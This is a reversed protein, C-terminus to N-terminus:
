KKILWEIEPLNAIGRLQMYIKKISQETAEVKDLIQNLNKEETIGEIINECMDLYYSPYLIRIFLLNIEYINLKNGYIYQMIKEIVDIQNLICSKFYESVDRVRNDIIFGTPNLYEHLTTNITTRAHAVTIISNQQGISSLMSICNEVIGIFYDSSERILPYKKGFQNIQYEVYDTKNMWLNYWNERKIRNLEKQQVYISNFLMIDNITIKRNEAFTQLMIYNIGNINTIIQNNNNLVIKHCYYGSQFIFEHLKYIESLEQMDRKFPELIYNYNQIQFKYIKNIQHIEEPNLGYYYNIANKM